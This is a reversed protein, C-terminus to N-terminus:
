NKKKVRLLLFYDVECIRIPTIFEKLELDLVKM